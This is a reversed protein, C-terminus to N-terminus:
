YSFVTQGDAQHYWEIWIHRRTINSGDSTRGGGCIWLKVYTNQETKVIFHNIEYPGEASHERIEVESTFGSDPIDTIYLLGENQPKLELISNGEVILRNNEGDLWIDSSDQTTVNRQLSFNFGQYQHTSGDQHWELLNIGGPYLMVEPIHTVGGRTIEITKSTSHYSMFPFIKSYSLDQHLEVIAGINLYYEGVPVDELYFDYDLGFGSKAVIIGGTYAFANYLIPMTSFPHTTLIAFLHYPAPEEDGYFSVSGEAEGVEIINETPLGNDCNIVFIITLVILFIPSKQIRM